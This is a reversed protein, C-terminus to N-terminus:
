VLAEQVASLFEPSQPPLTSSYGSRAVRNLYNEEKLIVKPSDSHRLHAHILECRVGGHLARVLEGVALAGAFAGTFSTSVPKRALTEALIGCDGESKFARVIKQDVAGPPTAAWIQEATKSADPFTHLIIRDFREADAGLACEIILDFGASELLRRPEASDFGCFAVFPEKGTRRTHLDFARETIVTRFGRAELWEACVRTKHRDLCREECLLGSSFNGKVIHDFDQLVFSVESPNAYPLMALNWLFAQGLHGLGLMWLNKPLLELPPGEAETSTWDLDPRWLSFGEPNDVYRTSLGSVLLFGKAVGLAAALIGGLAFDSSDTFRLSTRAPAIGGRWGSCVVLLGDVVPNAPQGFYLTHSFPNHNLGVFSAGLAQVVQNLTQATTWNLLCPIDAPMSVFVGGHFARKGTNVATLLAAQLASSEGISRDCILNLRFKSLMALADTYGVSHRQM